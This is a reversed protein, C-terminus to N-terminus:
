VLIKRLGGTAKFYANVVPGIPQRCIITFVSM